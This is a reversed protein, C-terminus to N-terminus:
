LANDVEAKLRPPHCGRSGCNKVVVVIKITSM